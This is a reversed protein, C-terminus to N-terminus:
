PGRRAARREIERNLQYHFQEVRPWQTFSYQFGMRDIADERDRDRSAPIAIYIPWGIGPREEDEGEVAALDEESPVRQVIIPLPSESRAPTVAGTSFYSGQDSESGDVEEEDAVEFPHEESGDGRCSCQNAILVAIERDQEAVRDEVQRLRTDAEDMLRCLNPDKDERDKVRWDLKATEEKRL